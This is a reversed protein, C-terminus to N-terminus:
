GPVLIAEGTASGAQSSPLHIGVGQRPKLAFQSAIELGGRLSKGTEAYRQIQEFSRRKKWRRLASSLVYQWTNDVTV